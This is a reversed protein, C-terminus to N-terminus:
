FLFNFVYKMLASVKPYDNKIEIAKECDELALQYEQLRLYANAGIFLWNILLM